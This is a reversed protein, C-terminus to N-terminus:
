RGRKQLGAVYEALAQVQLLATRRRHPEGILSQEFVEGWVPMAPAGHARLTRRGDISQMLYPVAARLRTLDTPPPVLAGAVPGDGLGAVGHCSACYRQYLLAGSAREGGERACGAALALLLPSLRALSGPTVIPNEIPGTGRSAIRRGSPPDRGGPMPSMGM